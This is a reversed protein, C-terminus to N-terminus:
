PTGLINIEAVSAFAQGIVESKAELKVFRAAIPTDFRVLEEQSSNMWRGNAKSTWNVGDNSVFIEYDAIRANTGDQRPLYLFGSINKSQEMDIVLEHPFSPADYFWQTHWISQADDDIANEAYGHEADHEISDATVTWGTRPLLNDEAKLVRVLHSAPVNAAKGQKDKANFTIRYTGAKTFKVPAPDLVTKETIGSGAFNWSYTLNSGDEADDAMGSFDITENVKITTISATPAEINVMPPLNTTKNGVLNFEAMSVFPNNAAEKLAEIRVFRGTKINYPEDLEKRYKEDLTAEFRVTSVAHEWHQGDTSIYVKLNTIVGELNNGQYPTYIYGSIDFQAGLDIDLTRGALGPDQSRSTHWATTINNDFINEAVGNLANDESVVGKNKIIWSSQPIVAVTAMSQEDTLNGADKVKVTFFQQGVANQPVNWTIVGTTPEITMGPRASVLEYTLVDGPDSDTAIVSYTFPQGQVAKPMVPFTRIKPADNDGNVVELTFTQNASQTPNANEAVSVSVSHNGVDESTPTWEILGSSGNIVMGAPAQTLKYSLTQGEPDIAVVQYQFLQDETAKSNAQSTISPAANNIVAPTDVGPPTNGGKDGGGGGGGCGAILTTSLLAFSLSLCRKNNYSGKNM